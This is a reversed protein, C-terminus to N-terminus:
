EPTAQRLGPPPRAGEARTKGGHARLGGYYVAESAPFPTKGDWPQKLAAFHGLADFQTGQQGPEAGENMTESNFAHATMPMGSTAKPKVVYPGAFPSLPMGNSRLQALEYAKAGPLTM